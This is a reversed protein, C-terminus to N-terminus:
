NRTRLAAAGVAAAKLSDPPQPALACPFSLSLCPKQRLSLHRRLDCELVEGLVIGVQAGREPNLSGLNLKPFILPSFFIPSSLVVEATSPIRTKWLGCAAMYKGAGKSLQEM